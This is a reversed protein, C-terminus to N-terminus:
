RQEPARINDRMPAAVQAASLMGSRRDAALSRRAKFLPPPLVILDGLERQAATTLYDASVCAGPTFTMEGLVPKDRISYFDVRVFPFPRALREAYHVMEAYGAPAPIDEDTALDPRCYPLKRNWTLDYFSLRAIGNPDRETATMTCYVKGGFCFLKYDTPLARRTGDVLFEECIIRPKMAGYHIEGLMRSFDTAMWRALDCRVATVDLGSKSRVFVNCKCGHTCKVVCPEPLATFDVAEVFEYVGHLRPLLQGLGLDEAYRRLTYKDGCETKLPHRWYLNLWLLKEDFTTPRDLDPWRGWAARHRVRALLEPSVSYLARIGLDHTAHYAAKLPRIRALVNRLSRM